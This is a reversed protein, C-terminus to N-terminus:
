CAAAFCCRLLALPCVVWVYGDFARLCSLCHVRCGGAMLPNDVLLVSRGRCKSSRIIEQLRPLLPGRRRATVIIGTLVGLTSTRGTPWRCYSHTSRQSDYTLPRAALNQLIDPAQAPLLLMDAAHHHQISKCTRCYGRSCATHM